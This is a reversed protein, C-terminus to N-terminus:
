KPILTSACVTVVTLLVTATFNLAFSLTCGDGDGGGGTLGNQKMYYKLVNELKDVVNDLYRVIAAPVPGEVSGVEVALKEAGTAAHDNGRALAAMLADSVHINRKFDSGNSSDSGSGTRSDSGSGSGLDFGIFWHSAVHRQMEVSKHIRWSFPKGQVDIKHFRSALANLLRASAYDDPAPHEGWAMLSAGKALLRDPGHHLLAAVPEAFTMKPTIDIVLLDYKTAGGFSSITDFSFSDVCVGGFRVRVRNGYQKEFALVTGTNNAIFPAHLLLDLSCYPMDDLLFSAMYANHALVLVRNPTPSIQGLVPYFDLSIGTDNNFRNLVRPPTINADALGKAPSEGDLLVEFGERKYHVARLEVDGPAVNLGNVNLFVKYDPISERNTNFADFARQLAAGYSDSAIRRGGVKRSVSLRTDYADFSFDSHPQMENHLVKTLSIALRPGGTEVGSKESWTLWVPVWMTGDFSVTTTLTDPMKACYLQYWGTAEISLKLDEPTLSSEDALVTRGVILSLSGRELSAYVQIATENAVDYIVQCLEDYLTGRREVVDGWDVACSRFSVLGFNNGNKFVFLRYVASSNGDRVMNCFKFLEQISEPDTPPSVPIDICAIYTWATMSNPFSRYLLDPDRPLQVRISVAVDERRAFLSVTAKNIHLNWSSMSLEQPNHIPPWPNIIYRGEEWGTWKQMDPDSKTHLALIRDESYMSPFHEMSEMSKVDVGILEEEDKTVVVDRAAELKRKDSVSFNQTTQYGLLEQVADKMKAVVEICQKPSLPAHRRHRIYCPVTADVLFNDDPKKHYKVKTAADGWLKGYYTQFRQELRKVDDDTISAEGVRYVRLLIGGFSISKYLEESDIPIGEIHRLMRERSRIQINPNLFINTGHDNERINSSGYASGIYVVSTYKKLFKRGEMVDDRPWGGGGSQERGRDLKRLEEVREKAELVCWRREDKGCYGDGSNLFAMKRRLSQGVCARVFELQKKRLRAPGRKYDGVDYGRVACASLTKGTLDALRKEFAVVYDALSGGDGGRLKRVEDLLWLEMLSEIGNDYGPVLRVGDVLAEPVAYRENRRYYNYGQMMREYAGVDYKRVGYLGDDDRVAILRSEASNPPANLQGFMDGDLYWAGSSKQKAEHTRLMSRLPNDKALPDRSLAGKPGGFPFRFKLMMARAGLRVGWAMQRAMDDEVSADDESLRMDCLFFLPESRKEARVLELESDNFFKARFTVSGRRRAHKVEPHFPTKDYLIWKVNPFMDMLVPLHEGPGAGVYLLTADDGPMLGRRRVESLFHLETFLCKRQGWHCRPDLARDDELWPLDRISSAREDLRIEDPGFTGHTSPQSFCRFAFRDM